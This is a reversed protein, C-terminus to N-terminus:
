CCHGTLGIIAISAIPYPRNLSTIQSLGKFDFVERLLFAAREKPMLEELVLMLAFSVDQELEVPDAPISAPGFQVIPEPLWPVVYVKRRKRASWMFDISLRSVTTALWSFPGEIVHTDAGNWRLYADQVIDEADELTGVIRYALGTLRPRFDEPWPRNHPSPNTM